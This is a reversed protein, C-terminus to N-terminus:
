ELVGYWRLIWLGYERQFEPGQSRVWQRVTLGGLDAPKTSYHDSIVQHKLTPVRVKNYPQNVGLIDGDPQNQEIIHHIEYGPQKPRLDEQLEELSRPPDFYSGADPPLDDANYVIEIIIDAVRYMRIWPSYYMIARVIWRAVGIETPPKSQDPPRPYQPIKPEPYGRPLEIRPPLFADDPVFDPAEPGQPVDEWRPPLGPHKPRGGALHLLGSQQQANALLSHVRGVVSRAANWQADTSPRDFISSGSFGGDTWQGGDPHGRPVRPQNPNFKQELAVAREVWAAVDIPPNGPRHAAGWALHKACADHFRGAYDPLPFSVKAAFIEANRRDGEALLNAAMQLLPARAGLRFRDGYVSRMATELVSLDILWPIPGSRGGPRIGGVPWAGLRILDGGIWCREARSRPVFDSRGRSVGLTHGHM